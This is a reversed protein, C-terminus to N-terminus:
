FNYCIGVLNCLFIYQFVKGYRVYRVQTVSPTNKEHMLFISTKKGKFLDCLTILIILRISKFRGERLEDPKLHIQAPM